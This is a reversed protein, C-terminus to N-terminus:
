IVQFCFIDGQQVVKIYFNEFKQLNKSFKVFERQRPPLFKILSTNRYWRECNVAALAGSLIVPISGEGM